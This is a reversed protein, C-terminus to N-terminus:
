DQEPATLLSCTATLMELEMYVVFLTSDFGM